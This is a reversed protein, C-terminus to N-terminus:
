EESKVKLPLTVKFCKGDDSVSVQKGTLLTFRKGLNILGTGHTEQKFQKPYIPNEVVLQTDHITYVKVQMRHESDIMNHVTVNEILPLLALVPIRMQMCSDAIDFSVDLKGAYRIQMVQCFSRAFELEKELTVLGKDGSQLIYRFIDSLHDIYDITLKDDKKRVLSSIGALSNFFFHPNIQNTLATCRSQLSEIQLQQLETDKQRHMRSLYDTYGLLLGMMGMVIFQFTPIMKFRDFGPCILYTVYKYLAFALLTFLLNPGIRGLLTHQRVLKENFLLIGASFLWFLVFRILTCTIFGSHQDAPICAWDCSMLAMNPFSAFITCVLSVLVFKYIPTDTTM